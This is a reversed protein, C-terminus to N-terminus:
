GKSSPLGYVPIAESRKASRAPPMSRLLERAHTSRRPYRWAVLGAALGSMVALVTLLLIPM